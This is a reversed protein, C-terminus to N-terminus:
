IFLQNILWVFQYYFIWEPIRMLNWYCYCLFRLYINLFVTPAFERLLVIGYNVFLCIVSCLIFCHAVRCLPCMGVRLPCVRPRIQFPAYKINCCGAYKDEYQMISPACLWKACIASVWLVNLLYSAKAIANFTTKTKKQAILNSPYPAAPEWNSPKNVSPEFGGCKENVDYHCRCRIQTM